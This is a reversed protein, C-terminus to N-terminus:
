GLLQKTIFNLSEQTPHVYLNYKLNNNPDHFHEITCECNNNKYRFLAGATEILQNENIKTDM